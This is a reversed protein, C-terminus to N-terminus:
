ANVASLVVRRHLAKGIMIWYCGALAFHFEDYYYGPLLDPLLQWLSIGLPFTTLGFLLMTYAVSTPLNGAKLSAISLLVTSVFLPLVSPGIYNFVEQPFPIHLLSLITGVFGLSAALIAIGGILLAPFSWAKYQNDLRQFIGFLTIGVFVVGGFYVPGTIRLAPSNEVQYQTYSEIFGYAIDFVYYLIWFTGGIIATKSYWSSSNKDISHNM